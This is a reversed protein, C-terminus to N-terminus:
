WYENSPGAAATTGSEAPEFIAFPRRGRLGKALPRDGVPRGVLKDLPFLFLGRLALKM